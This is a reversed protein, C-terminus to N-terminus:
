GAEPTGARLHGETRLAAWLGAPVPRRLLDANRHVEAATRMGVTVNVVAPHTFPFALAAAPLTTGFAECVEAVRTARALLDPPAERYDYRSGAPPRDRALLGSNFVGAAV